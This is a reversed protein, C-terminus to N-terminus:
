IRWFQSDVFDDYFFFKEAPLYLKLHSILEDVTVEDDNYISLTKFLHDSKFRKYMILIFIGRVNHIREIQVFNIRRANNIESDISDDSVDIYCDRKFSFFLRFISFLIVLLVLFVLLFIYEDLLFSSERFQKVFILLVLGIFLISFQKVRGKSFLYLRIYEIRGRNSIDFIKYRKLM